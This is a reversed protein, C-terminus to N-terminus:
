VFGKRMGSEPVEVMQLARYQMNKIVHYYNYNMEQAVQEWTKFQIYRKFLLIRSIADDVGEVAELIERKVQYLAEVRAEIRQAYEAYRAFRSEQANRKSGQVKVDTIVGTVQTAQEFAARQEDVLAEIEIDLMRGRDLWERKTLRIGGEATKMETGFVCGACMGTVM